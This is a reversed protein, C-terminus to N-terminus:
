FIFLYSTNTLTHLFPLGQVTSTPVHVPSAVISFLITIGQSILFLVVMQDLLGVEPCIDLSM